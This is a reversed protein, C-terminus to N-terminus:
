KLDKQAANQFASISMLEDLIQQIAQGRGRADAVQRQLRDHNELFYHYYTRAEEMYKERPAAKLAERVRRNSEIRAPNRDVERIGLEEAAVLEIWSDLAMMKLSLSGKNLRRYLLTALGMVPMGADPHFDNLVADPDRDAHKLFNAHKSFDKWGIAEDILKDIVAGFGDDAEHPYLNLLVKLSAFALTFISLGDRDEFWLDIATDLQRQAAELKSIRQAM